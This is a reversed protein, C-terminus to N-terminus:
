DFNVSLLHHIRGNGLCENLGGEDLITDELLQPSYIQHSLDWM